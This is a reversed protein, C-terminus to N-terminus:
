PSLEERGCVKVLHALGKQVHKNVARVSIGLMQAVETAKMHELKILVLVTRTRPNLDDLARDIEALEEQVILVRELSNESGSAQFEEQWATTPPQTRIRRRRDHLRNIAARFIYGKAQEPTQWDAHKLASVLVDQTLDEAEVANGTKRKFFRILAPRLRAAFSPGDPTPEPPLPAPKM